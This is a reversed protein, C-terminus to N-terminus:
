LGVEDMEKQDVVVKHQIVGSFVKNLIKQGLNTKIIEQKNARARAKKVAIIMDDLNQLLASKEITSLRGSTPTTDWYGLTVKKATEKIQAPHKDTAPVVVRWDKEVDTQANRRTSGKYVNAEEDFWWDESIDRTPIRNYIRRLEDLRRELNLLATAPVNEAIIEDKFILDAKAVSNTMEKVINFDLLSAFHKNFFNLKEAVSARLRINQNPLQIGDVDAPTHIKITGDFFNGKHGFTDLIEAILAEVRKTTRTEAALHEHLSTVKSM